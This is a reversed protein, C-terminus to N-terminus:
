VKPGRKYKEYSVLLIPKQLVSISQYFYADHHYDYKIASFYIYFSVFYTNDVKVGPIKVFAYSTKNYEILM